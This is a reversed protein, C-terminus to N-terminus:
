VWYRCTDRDDHRRIDELRGGCREITARSAVNDADCTLLARALGLTRAIAICERLVETAVGRRRHSPVVGFGIHGGRDLLAADLRHRISARALIQDEGVAVLFTSQVRGPPLDRGERLRRMRMLFAHFDGGPTYWYAFPWGPDSEHFATVARDFRDRDELVLERLIM